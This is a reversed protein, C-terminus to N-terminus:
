TSKALIKKYGSEIHAAGKIGTYPSSSGNKIGLSLIRHKSGDKHVGHFVITTGQNEVEYRDVNRNIRDFDEAPHGVNVKNKNTDYHVKLEPHVTPEASLLRRLANSKEVNGMRSFGNAFAAAVGQRHKVSAALAREVKDKEEPSGNKLEKFQAHKKELSGSSISDGMIKDREKDHASILDEIVSHNLGSLRSLDKMGPNRAGPQAGYKLSAAHFKKGTRFMVDASTNPDDVGTFSRHDSPQSTWAVIDPSKSHHLAGRTHLEKRYEEVAKKAHSSIEEYKEDGFHKRLASAIEVPRKGDEDRYHHPYEINNFHKAFELEFAKGAADAGKGSEAAAKKTAEDLVILLKDRLRFFTNIM